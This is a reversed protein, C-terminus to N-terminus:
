ESNIKKSLLEAERDNLEQLFETVKETMEELLSVDKEVRVISTQIHPPFTPNFSVFDCWDRGTCEMQWQIQYIYRTDIKKTELNELHRVAGPCKIELLGCDGVLDDPSAGTGVITPHDVFGTETVQTSNYFSYALRAPGEQENGWQMAETCPIEHVKGTLREGLLELLYRERTASPASGRGKSMVCSMKSATVKGRRAEFWEETNQEM